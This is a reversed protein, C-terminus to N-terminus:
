CVLAWSTWLYALTVRPQCRIEVSIDGAGREGWGESLPWSAWVSLM